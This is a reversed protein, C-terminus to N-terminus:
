LANLVTLLTESKMATEQWEKLPDSDATIGAGVYLAVNREAIRMCRLNVYLSLPSSVNVPGLFGSYYGRDHKELTQLYHFSSKQPLGCVAPTPHLDLLFDHLSGNLSSDPIIFTTKLHCVNGAAYPEPGFVKFDTIGYHELCSFVHDSVFAQEKREKRDWNAYNMNAATLAHTGAVAATMYSGEQSLLIPEPTAGAWLQEGTNVVYVFADPYAKAMKGFLGGLTFGAPKETVLIRSLVAKDIKGADIDYVIQQVQQRFETETAIYFETDPSPTLPNKYRELISFDHDRDSFVHDAVIFVAKENGSSFPHFLFGKTKDLLISTLSIQNINGKQVLLFAEDEAPNRWVAFPINREACYGIAETFNM